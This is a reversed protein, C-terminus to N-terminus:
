LVELDEVGGPEDGAGTVASVHEVAAARGTVLEESRAARALPCVSRLLM